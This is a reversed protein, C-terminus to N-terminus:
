QMAFRLGSGVQALGGEPTPTLLRQQNVGRIYSDCRVDPFPWIRGDPSGANRERAVLFMQRVDKEWDDAGVLEILTGGFCVGDIKV